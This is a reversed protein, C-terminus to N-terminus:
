HHVEKQLGTRDILHNLFGIPFHQRVPLPRAPCFPLRGSDKLCGRGATTDDGGGIPQFGHKRIVHVGGNIRRYAVIQCVVTLDPIVCKCPVGLSKTVGDPFALPRWDGCIGCVGQLFVRSRRSELSLFCGALPFYDPFVLHDHLGNPLRM